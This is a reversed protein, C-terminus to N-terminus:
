ATVASEAKLAEKFEPLDSVKKLHDQTAPGVQIDLQSLISNWDVFVKLFYDIISPSEDVLCGDKELKKEVIDLLKTINDAAKQMLDYKQNNSEDVEHLLMFVKAYAPHITSNMFMLWKFFEAKKEDASPVLHPAHKDLLYLAMAGGETIVHADAVLTPVQNTPNLELYNSCSDRHVLTVDLNLKKMLVTIATSCYGPM